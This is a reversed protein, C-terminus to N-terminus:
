GRVRPLSRSERERFRAKGVAESAGEILMRASFLARDDSLYWKRGGIVLQVEGPRTVM